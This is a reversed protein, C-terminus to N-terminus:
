RHHGRAERDRGARRPVDEHVSRHLHHAPRDSGLAEGAGAGAAGGDPAGAIALTMPSM